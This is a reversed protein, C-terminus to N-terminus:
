NSLIKKVYNQTEKFPPIGGYKDVNGPGANYAALAIATNGYKNLMQSLYKAGGEINERPDFPNRVGLDRATGPMLQMLGMAGASSVAKEDFNSEVQIVKTLLSSPINYKQSMEEIIGGLKSRSSTPTTSAFMQNNSVSQLFDESSISEEPKTDPHWNQTTTPTANLKRSFSSNMDVSPPQLKSQISLQENQLISQISNSM